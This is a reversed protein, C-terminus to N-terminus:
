EQIQATIKVLDAAPIVIVRRESFFALHHSLMVIIKANEFTENKTTIQNFDKSVDTLLLYILFVGLVTSALRFAHYETHGNATKIDYYISVAGVLASLALGVIVIWKYNKVQHQLWMLLNYLYNLMMSIVSSLLATGILFLKALDTYEILWILSWDFVALYAALFLMSIASAVGIVVSSLVLFHKTLFDLVRTDSKL